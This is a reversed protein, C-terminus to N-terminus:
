QIIEIISNAEGDLYDYHRTEWEEHMVAFGAAALAANAADYKARVDPNIEM